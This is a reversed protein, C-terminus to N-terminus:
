EARLAEVPNIRTARRAPILCATLATFVLLLAGILYTAPDAANIGFLQSQLVRGVGLACGLGIAVGPLVLALGRAVVSRVVDYRTAGHAVRIGIERTRRGVNFALVGYLGIAALALATAAFCAFLNRNFRRGATSGDIREALVRFDRIPEDRLVPALATRVAGALAAPELRSRVVLYMQTPM